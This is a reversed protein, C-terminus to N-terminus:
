SVMAYNSLPGARQKPQPASVGNRVAGRAPSSALNAGYEASKMRDRSRPYKHGQESHVESQAFRERPIPFEVHERTDPSPSRSTPGALQSGRSVM